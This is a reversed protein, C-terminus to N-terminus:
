KIEKYTTRSSIRYRKGGGPEPYPGQTPLANRESTRKRRADLRKRKSRGVAWRKRELEM